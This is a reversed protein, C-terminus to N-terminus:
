SQRRSLPSDASKAHTAANDVSPIDTQSSSSTTAILTSWTGASPVNFADDTGSNHGPFCRAYAFRVQSAM